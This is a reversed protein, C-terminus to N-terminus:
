PAKNAFPFRRETANFVKLMTRRVIHPDPTTAWHVYLPEKLAHNAGYKRRYLQGLQKALSRSARGVHVVDGSGLAIVYVGPRPEPVPMGWPQGSPELEVAHFLERVLM